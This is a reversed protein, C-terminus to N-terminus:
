RINKAQEYHLHIDMLQRGITVCALFADCATEALLNLFATRVALEYDAKGQYEYLEHYYRDIAKKLASASLTASTGTM